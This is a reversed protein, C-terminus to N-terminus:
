GASWSPGVEVGNRLLQLHVMRYGYVGGSKKFVQKVKVALWFRHVPEDHPDIVWEYFGSRSVRAWVCMRVIPYNAKEGDIFEYISIM